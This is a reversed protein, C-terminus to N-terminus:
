SASVRTSSILKPSFVQSLQKRLRTVRLDQHSRGSEPGPSSHRAAQAKGFGLSGVRYLLLLSLVVGYEIPKRLDAKVLWAYHVVALIGTFYILRHLRQWNKGGLRRISWATSTLALPILLVFASFGVTIFRRKAIDKLMEHIDFFKDLWIYTLFHLTGYFFAFLGIMRRLGILWYQRTIRRLPTISLTTLVLILTWDGTSHTIVEIPNAGLGDHFAKWVLRELPILAALFIAIKVLRLKM